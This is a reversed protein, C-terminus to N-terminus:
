RSGQDRPFSFGESQLLAGVTDSLGTAQEQSLPEFVWPLLESLEAQLDELEFPTDPLASPQPCM